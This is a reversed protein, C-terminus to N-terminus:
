PTLVIGVRLGLAEAVRQVTSLRPDNGAFLRSVQQRKMGCMEGIERHTLGRRLRESDLSRILENPQPDATPAPHPHGAHISVRPEPLRVGLRGQGEPVRIEAHQEAQVQPM